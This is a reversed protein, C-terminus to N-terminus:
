EFEIPGAPPAVGTLNYTSIIIMNKARWSPLNQFSLYPDAAWRRLAHRGGTPLCPSEVRHKSALKDVIDRLWIIGEIRM